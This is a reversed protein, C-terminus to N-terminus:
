RFYITKEKASLVLEGKGTFRFSTAERLTQGFEQEQSGECYMMTSFMNGFSLKDGAVTYPGGMSNCDTDVAVNSDKNFTIGFDGPNKPMVIGGKGDETKIWIWKKMDLSMRDPDAEGEFDKVWEGIENTKKDFHIWLSKGESNRATMMAGVPREAYNYVARGDHIEVTQPAIRDGLLLVNTAVYSNDNNMVLVAYYFTGSGGPNNVLLLAGDADGDGDLDGIVPDQFLALTNKTAGGGPYEKEAKGDVLEFVEGEISVKFNKLDNKESPANIGPILDGGNTFNFRYFGVVAVLAIVSLPLVTSYFIIKKM